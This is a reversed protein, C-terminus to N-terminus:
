SSITGTDSPGVPNFHIASQQNNSTLNTRGMNKVKVVSKQILAFRLEKMTELKILLSVPMDQSSLTVRGLGWEDCLDVMM